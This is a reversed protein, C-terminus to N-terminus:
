TLFVVDRPLGLRWCFYLCDFSCRGSAVEVGDVLKRFQIRRRPVIVQIDPFLDRFYRTTLTSCPMIVVFPKGLERLRALVRPLESFPPNTVVCEGLDHAFFDVDEHIVDFGLETLRPDGPRAGRPHRPARVGRHFRFRSAGEDDRGPLGATDVTAVRASKIPDRVKTQAHKNGRKWVVQLAKTGPLVNYANHVTVDFRYKDAKWGAVSRLMGLVM